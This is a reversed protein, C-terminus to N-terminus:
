PYKRIMRTILLYPPGFTLTTPFLHYRMRANCRDALDQRNFALMRGNLFGWLLSSLNGIRTEKISWRSVPFLYDRIRSIPVYIQGPPVNWEPLMIRGLRSAQLVILQRLKSNNLLPEVINQISNSPQIIVLSFGNTTETEAFNAPKNEVNIFLSCRFSPTLNLTECLTEGLRHSSAIILGTGSECAVFASCAHFANM